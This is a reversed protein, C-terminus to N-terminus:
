GEIKTLDAVQLCTNRISALMNLRNRRVVQNEANVQVAEFFADIPARLGAMAEMAAGFDEDKMAPAIRTEAAELAAFLAREEDTEAFKVDAGFSYEVGDKEEAQALINNARKFGQLLNEGDDTKLFESLAEARTVLLRLDDTGPMALCADIVDHRIGQDRLWVKLRDHFFGLLDDSLDPVPAVVPAIEKGGTSLRDRLAAWAAGFVGHDAIEEVLEELEEIQTDDLDGNGLAIKHRVLQADIFRDLNIRLGNELVLRIVGLAARRLAYPDKSGTPKEDIAWFGTLTDLKDALAVAVSVPATPVADSPGLPAYHEECAAAVSADLGAAEAYYRGMLGQLEPFEYVMETSLDAKAVDAAEGALHRDAGVAPAISRALATIRAIRDRQSGLAHHFTVNGLRETWASLGESQAVRLDNEWFFKADSLRAALVKQNGALITAGNDSAEINAVTVFKEIRGTAPNKVSFFKQHEKMSTQLVEPPLGLFEEAIDGMLVVPWEVLGAVERLLGQDEVVELGRAFAMNTADHWITDARAQPDLIVHARKLRTEYDEFGTVEFAGHGMFRHGETTQGAKIGDIDLDIPHDGAEDTLLCLIRHLPRVWRLSGAGWRMSKPWPFNRITKELQEAVIEAAPRGPTVVTAYYFAGKKEEREELQDRTVGAGRMFGELAKDPAGVKPGRREERLTPSEASLGHITLALRRPTSFAEAGSYTLGAEVLGDTMLKKLDQAAKGQMRAPIEESFLEILLDPM